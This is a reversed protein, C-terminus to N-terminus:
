IGTRKTESELSNDWIMKHTDNMIGDTIGEYIEITAQNNNEVPTLYEETDYLYDDSNYGFEPDFLEIPTIGTEIKKIIENLDADDELYMRCWMTIKFDIYKKM